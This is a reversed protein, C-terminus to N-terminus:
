LEGTVEQGDKTTETGHTLLMVRLPELGQVDDMCGAQEGHGPGEDCGEHGLGGPVLNADKTGVLQVFIGEQMLPEGLDILYTTNLLVEAEDM